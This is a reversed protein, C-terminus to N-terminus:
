GAPLQPCTEGGITVVACWSSASVKWTGGVRVAHSKLGVMAPLGGVFLDHGVLACPSVEKAATCDADSLVDVSNVVTSLQQFQPNKAADVVMSGLLDGHELVAIKATTDPDLGDFFTTFAATIATTNDTSAAVTTAGASVVTTSSEPASSSAPLTSPPTAPGSVSTTLAEQTTDASKSSSCATILMAAVITLAGIIPAQRTM